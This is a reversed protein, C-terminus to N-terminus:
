RATGNKKNWRKNWAWVSLKSGITELLGLLFDKIKKM